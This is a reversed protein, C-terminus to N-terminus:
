QRSTEQLISMKYVNQNLIITGCFSTITQHHKQFSYWYSSFQAYKYKLNSNYQFIYTPSKLLKNAKLHINYFKIHFVKHKITILYIQEYMSMIFVKDISM